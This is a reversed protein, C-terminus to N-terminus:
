ILNKGTLVEFGKEKNVSKRKRKLRSVQLLFEPNDSILKFIGRMKKMIIELINTSPAKRMTEYEKAIFTLLYYLPQECDQPSYRAASNRYKYNTEEPLLLTSNRKRVTKVIQNEDRGFGDFVIDGVTQIPIVASAVTTAYQEKITQILRTYVEEVRKTVMEMQDSHFYKECKLPVFLVLKHAIDDKLNEEFFTTIIKCCNKAENYQGEEEMLHPTDIAIIIANSDEIFQKVLEPEREIYEGPFDRFEIRIQSSTNDMGFLFTYLTIDEDGSIGPSPISVGKQANDFMKLLEDYKRNILDPTAGIPYMYLKTGELADKMNKSLSALVSSKGAGKGGMMSVKLTTPGATTLGIKEKLKQLIAM